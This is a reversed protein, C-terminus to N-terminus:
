TAARVYHLILLPGHHRDFIDNRVDKLTIKDDLAVVKDGPLTIFIRFHNCPQYSLKIGLFKKLHGITLEQSTRLCERQLREVNKEQPHRRLIFDVLKSRELNKIGGPIMRVSPMVRANAADRVRSEGNKNNGKKRMQAQRSIQLMRKQVSANNMNNRRNWTEIEKEEHNELADIDGFMKKMLADYSSDPRLSRRSPIHVRCSPCEKKGLRLCKQICEGCFRHLCEMVIFTKKLYGLCVPCQFLTNISDIKQRCLARSTHRPKRDIDFMTLHPILVKEQYRSLANYGYLSAQHHQKSGGSETNSSKSM